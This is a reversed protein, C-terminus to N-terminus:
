NTSGADRLLSFCHLYDLVGLTLLLSQVPEQYKRM